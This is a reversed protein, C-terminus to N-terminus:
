ERAIPRPLNLLVPARRTLLEALEADNLGVRERLIRVTDARGFVPYDTAFVFRELGVARMVAGLEAADAETTAARGDADASLVAGSLDFYIPAARFRAERRALEGLGSFLARARADFGGSGGTHAIILQLDPHPTVLAWFREALEPPEHGAFLHILVATNTAACWSFTEALVAAHSEDALDLGCSPLHLKLGVMGPQARSREREDRAYARRPNLSFFGALRGPHRAVSAAIFDNERRVLEREAARVQPLRAFWASTYLHAMSVIAAQEAGTQALVIDIEAYHADPRSFPVGLSKWDAILHPSLLHVHHDHLPASAPSEESAALCIPILLLGCRLSNLFTIPPM